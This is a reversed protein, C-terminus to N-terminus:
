RRTMSMQGHDFAGMCSNSGSYTGHMQTMLSDMDFTGNAVANCTGTMMSGGPMTMTFTATTGNITGSVTMAGGGAYGPFQMVGAFANGTQTIQWTMNSMMSASMGAGMMTGSSDSATGVWTGTVAAGATPGTPAMPSTPMSSGSGCAAGALASLLAVALLSRTM